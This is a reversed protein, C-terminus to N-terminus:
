VAAEWSSVVAAVEDPLDDKAKTVGKNRYKM